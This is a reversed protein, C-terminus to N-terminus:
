LVGGPILWELFAYMVGAAALGIVIEIIRKKAKTMAAPDGSSTAYQIASIIIGIVAFAGVLWIMVNLVIGLIGWIGDCYEGFLATQVCETGGSTEDAFVKLLEFM